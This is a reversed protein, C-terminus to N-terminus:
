LRATRRRVQRISMAKGGCGESMSGDLIRFLVEVRQLEHESM